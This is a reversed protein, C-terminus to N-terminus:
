IVPLTVWPLDAWWVLRRLWQCPWLPLWQLYLCRQQLLVPQAYPVSCFVCQFCKSIIANDLWPTDDLSLLSFRPLDSWVSCACSDHCLNEPKTRRCTDPLKRRDPGYRDVVANDLGHGDNAIEAHPDVRFQCHALLDCKSRNKEM